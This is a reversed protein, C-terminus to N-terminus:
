HPGHRCDRQRFVADNQADPSQRLTQSPRQFPAEGKDPYAAFDGIKRTRRRSVDIEAELIRLRLKLADTKPPAVTPPLTEIGKGAFDIFTRRRRRRFDQAVAKFDKAGPMDADVRRAANILQIHLQHLGRARSTQRLGKFLALAQQGGFPVKSQLALTGQREVRLADRQDCGGGARGYM